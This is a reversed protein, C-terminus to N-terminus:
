FFFFALNRFTALWIHHAPAVDYISRAIGTPAEVLKNFAEM